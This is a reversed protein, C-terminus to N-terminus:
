CYPRCRYRNCCCSRSREAWRDYIVAVAAVLFLVFQIWTLGIVANRTTTGPQGADQAQQGRV